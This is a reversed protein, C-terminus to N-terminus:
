LQSRNVICSASMPMARATEIQVVIEDIKDKLEM